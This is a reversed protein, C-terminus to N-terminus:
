VIKNNQKVVGIFATEETLVQYKESLDLIEEKALDSGGIRDRHNLSKNREIKEYLETTRRKAALKSLSNGQEIM